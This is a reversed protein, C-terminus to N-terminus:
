PHRLSAVSNATITVVVFTLWSLIVLLWIAGLIESQHTIWTLNGLIPVLTGSGLLVFGVGLQKNTPSWEGELVMGGTIIGMCAPWLLWWLHPNM